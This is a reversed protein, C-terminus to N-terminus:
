VIATQHCIEITDAYLTLMVFGKHSGCDVKWSEHPIWDDLETGELRDISRAPENPSRLEDNVPIDVGYLTGDSASGQQFAIIFDALDGKLREMDASSLSEEVWPKPFSAHLDPGSFVALGDHAFLDFDEIPISYLVSVPCLIYPYM